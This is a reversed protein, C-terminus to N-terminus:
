VNGALEPTEVNLMWVLSDFSAGFKTPRQSCITRGSDDKRRVISGQLLCM